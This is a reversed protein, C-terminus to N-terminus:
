KFFYKNLFKMLYLTFIKLTPWFYAKEVKQEEENSNVKEKKKTGIWIDNRSDYCSPQKFHGVLLSLYQQCCSLSQCIAPSPTSVESCKSEQTKCQTHPGTRQAAETMDSEKHGQPSYGGLRRQGQSEGPLFVPNSQRGRSWTIKGVRPDFGCRKYRRSQCNPELMMQFTGVAPITPFFGITRESTRPELEALM